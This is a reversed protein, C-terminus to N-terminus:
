RRHQVYLRHLVANRDAASRGATMASTLAQLLPALLFLLASLESCSAPLSRAPCATTFKPLPRASTSEALSAGASQKRPTLSPPLAVATAAFPPPYYNHPVSDDHRSAIKPYSDATFAMHRGACGGYDTGGGTWVRAFEVPYRSEDIDPRIGNRRTPCYLGKIDKDAKGPPTAASTNGNAASSNSVSKKWNWNLSEEEIFPMIQLIWSTGHHNRGAVAEAHVDYPYVITGAPGGTVPIAITGPPLVKNSTTYNHIAVGLQKLQNNCFVRRAAERAAQVAPLLLAILIAIITIVVLLEM